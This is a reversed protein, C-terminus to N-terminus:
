RILGDAWALGVTTSLFSKSVSHTMDVRRTDGWEAIIYGHRVIVGAAGGRVRFPGIGHGYPERGFSQAQSLEQDREVETEHSLAFDVAAPVGAPDMGVQEPTRTEWASGRGPVYQAHAASGFVSSAGAALAITKMVRVGAPSLRPRRPWRPASSHTM